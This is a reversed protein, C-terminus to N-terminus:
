QRGQQCMLAVFAPLKDRNNVAAEGTSPVSCTSLINVSRTHSRTQCAEQTLVNATCLGLGSLAPSEETRSRCIWSATTKLTRRAERGPQLDKFHDSLGQNPPLFVLPCSLFPPSPPGSTPTPPLLSLGCTTSTTPSPGRSPLSQSGECFLLQVQPPLSTVESSRRHSSLFYFHIIQGLFFGCLTFESLVLALVESYLNVKSFSSQSGTKLLSPPPFFTFIFQNERQGLVNIM